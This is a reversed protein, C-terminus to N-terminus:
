VALEARQDREAALRATTETLELTLTRQARWIRGATWVVVGMALAGALGGLAAHHWAALVGAGTAWLALGLTARARPQWAAVAFLPVVLSYLGTVSSRDLSTLGGNLAAALGGVVALCLLPRRRRWGAALAM